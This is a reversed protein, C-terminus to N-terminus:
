LHSAETHSHKHGNRPNGVMSARGHKGVCATHGTAAVPGSWSTTPKRSLMLWMCSCRHVVHTQKHPLRRFPVQTNLLPAHSISIYNRCVDGNSDSLMAADCVIQSV